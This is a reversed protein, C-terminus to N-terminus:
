PNLESVTVTRDSHVTVHYGAYEFSVEPSGHRYLNELADPDIAEYLPTVPKTGNVETMATVVAVTISETESPATQIPLEAPSYSM